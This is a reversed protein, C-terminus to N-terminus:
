IGYMGVWVGGVGCGCRVGGVGVWVVFWVRERVCSM